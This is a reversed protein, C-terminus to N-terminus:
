IGRSQLETPILEFGINMQTKDANMAAYLRLDDTGDPNISKTQMLSRLYACLGWIDLKLWVGGGEHATVYGCVEMNPYTKVLALITSASLRPLDTMHRSYRM